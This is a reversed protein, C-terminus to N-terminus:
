TSLQVQRIKALGKASITRKNALMVAPWMITNLKALKIKTNPLAPSLMPPLAAPATIATGNTNNMLKISNSTANKCANMKRNQRSYKNSHSNFLLVM